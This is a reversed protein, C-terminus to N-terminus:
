SRYSEVEQDEEAFDKINLDKTHASPSGTDNWFAGILLNDEVAGLQM